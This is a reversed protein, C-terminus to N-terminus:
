NADRTKPKEAKKEEARQIVPGPKQQAPSVRRVPQPRGAPTNAAPQTRMQARNAPSPQPLTRQQAPQTNAPTRNFRSDAPRGTNAPSANV